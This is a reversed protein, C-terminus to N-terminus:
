YVDLNRLATSCYKVGTGLTVCVLHNTEIDIDSEETTGAQTQGGNEMNFSYFHYINRFSLLVAEPVAFKM